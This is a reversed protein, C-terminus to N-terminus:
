FSVISATMRFGEVTVRFSTFLRLVLETFSRQCLSGSGLDEYRKVIEPDRPYNTWSFPGLFHHMTIRMRESDRHTCYAAQSFSCCVESSNGFMPFNM